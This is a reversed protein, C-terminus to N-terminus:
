VVFESWARWRKISARTSGKQNQIIPVVTVRKLVCNICAKNFYVRYSIQFKTLFFLKVWILYFSFFIWLRQLLLLQLKEPLYLKRFDVQHVCLQWYINNELSQKQCLDCALYYFESSCSKLLQLLNWLNLHSKRILNGLWKVCIVIKVFNVFLM